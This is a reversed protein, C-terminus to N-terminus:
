RAEAERRRTVTAASGCSHHAFAVLYSAPPSVAMTLHCVGGDRTTEIGTVAGPTHRFVGLMAHNEAFTDAVFRRIGDAWGIGALLTLLERGIGHRQYGDQVVFAVEGADSTGLRNYRGVAVIQGDFTAVLAVQGDALSTFRRAEDDGLHPHAAFFRRRVTDPSLRRHFDQLASADTTRIRRIVVGAFAGPPAVELVRPGHDPPM